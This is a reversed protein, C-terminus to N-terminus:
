EHDGGGANRRTETMLSPSEKKDVLAMWDARDEKMYRTNEMWEFKEGAAAALLVLHKRSWGGQMRFSHTTGQPYGTKKGGRCIRLRSGGPWRPDHNVQRFDPEWFGGPNWQTGRPWEEFAKDWGFYEATERQTVVSVAGSRYRAVVLKKFEM